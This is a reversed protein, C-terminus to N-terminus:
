QVKEFHMNKLKAKTDNRLVFIFSENNIKKNM